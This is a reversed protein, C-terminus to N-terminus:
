DAMNGAAHQEVLQTLLWEHSTVGLRNAISAASEGNRIADKGLTDIAQYVIGEVGSERAVDVLLSLSGNQIPHADGAAVFAQVAGAQENEPLKLIHFGLKILVPDRNEQPLTAVNEGVLEAFKVATNVGAPIYAEIAGAKENPPMNLIHLRLEALVPGRLDQPLRPVYDSLLTAFKGATDAAPMGIELLAQSNIKGKEEPSMAFFVATKLAVKTHVNSSVM